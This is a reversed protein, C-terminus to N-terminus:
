ENTSFMITSSFVICKYSVDKPFNVYFHKRGYINQFLLHFNSPRIKQWSHKFKANKIFIPQSIPRMKSQVSIIIFCKQKADAPPRKRLKWRDGILYSQHGSFNRTLGKFGGQQCHLLICVCLPQWQSWSNGKSINTYVAFHAANIAARIGSLTLRLTWPPM